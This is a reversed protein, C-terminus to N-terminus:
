VSENKKSWKTWEEFIYGNNYDYWYKLWDGVKIRAPRRFTNKNNFHMERDKGKDTVRLTFGMYSVSTVEAYCPESYLKTHAPVALLKNENYLWECAEEINFCLKCHEKLTVALYSNKLGKIDYAYGILQEKDVLSVTYRARKNILEEVDLKVKNYIENM